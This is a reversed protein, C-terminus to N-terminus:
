ATKGKWYECSMEFKVEKAGHMGARKWGQMLYFKEARTNPSTSLWIKEKTQNFYWEMMIDHLHKGIGKSEFKPDVFLAWINKQQLGVIAFGVIKDKIECVWGKGFNSLYNVYDQHTVLAIDSLINENVSMRIMTMKEIDELTAERYNM